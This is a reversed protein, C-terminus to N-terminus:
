QQKESQREGEDAKAPNERRLSLRPLAGVM